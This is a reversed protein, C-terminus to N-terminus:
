LTGREASEGALKNDIFHLLKLLPHAAAANLVAQALLVMLSGLTPTVGGIWRIGLGIACAVLSAVFTVVVSSVPGTLYVHRAARRSLLFMLALTFCHLGKIGGGLVDSIYGLLLGTVGGSLDAGQGGLSSRPVRRALGAGPGSMAMYLVIILPVDLVVMGMGLLEQLSGMVILLLFGVATFVLIRSM